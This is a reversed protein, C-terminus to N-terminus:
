CSRCPPHRRCRTRRCTGTSRSGVGTSRANRPWSLAPINGGIRRQPSRARVTCSNCRMTPAREGAGHLFLVLPYSQGPEIKEPKLLRYPLVQGSVDAYQHVTYADQWSAACVMKQPGFMTLSLPFLIFFLYRMSKM